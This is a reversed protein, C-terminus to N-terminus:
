KRKYPGMWEGYALVHNKMATLLNEKTAGAELKFFIDIAYVKFFYRHKKGTPPMPGGYGINGFDNVGQRVNKIMSATRPERTKPINKSLGKYEVPINFIVWHVFTKGVVEKADPDDCIIAISVTEKPYVGWFIPPSINDGQGTYEVPIPKGQNFVSSTVKIHPIGDDGPSFGTSVAVASVNAFFVFGMTNIIFILTKTKMAEGLTLNRCIKILRKM